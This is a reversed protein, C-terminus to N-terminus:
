RANSLFKELALVGRGVDNPQLSLRWVAAERVVIPAESSSYGGVAFGPWSNTRDLRSARVPATHDTEDYSAGLEDM